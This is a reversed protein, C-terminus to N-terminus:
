PKELAADIAAIAADFKVLWEEFRGGTRLEEWPAGDGNRHLGYVGTSENILDEVASLGERAGALRAETIALAKELTAARAAAVQWDTRAREHQRESEALKAKSASLEKELMAARETAVQWDTIARTLDSM